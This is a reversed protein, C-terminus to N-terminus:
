CINEKSWDCSGFVTIEKAGAAVAAEFGLVHLRATDLNKVLGIVDRADVLQPVWKPLVFSKAEDVSTM